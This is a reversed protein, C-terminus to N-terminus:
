AARHVELGTSILGVWNMPCLSKYVRLYWQCPTVDQDRASLAKNCRHFDSIYYFLEPNAQEDSVKDMCFGDLLKCLNFPLVLLNVALVTLVCVIILANFSLSFAIILLPFIFFSNKRVIM